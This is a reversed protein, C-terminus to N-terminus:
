CKRDFYPTYRGVMYKLKNKHSNFRTLPTQEGTEKDMWAQAKSPIDRFEPQSLFERLCRELGAEPATFNWEGVLQKRKTNDFIRDFLRDYKIQYWRGMARGMQESSAIYKVKMPKGTMTLLVRQYLELVDCWRIAREMTIHVAQGYAYSNGILVAIGRAVDQGMTLTTTHELIDEPVVVTQGHLVRYLWYEKEFVGLQLRQNSYTIYPRIITWNTKGSERLLNEQRAKALAYEDTQLYEKDAVTDLLRPSDETLPGVTGAYVRSSSLFLYQKAADLLLDRRTRFEQTTYAMFDVIADVEEHLLSQLFATDHADGQIYRVSDLESKRKLRSTVTLCNTGKGALMKVLDVGMAGTGGLILIDM